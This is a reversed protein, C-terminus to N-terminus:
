PLFRARYEPSAVFGAVIDREPAGGELRSVHFDLGAPEPMRRLLGLYVAIVFSKNRTLAQFEPSESFGAMVQGRTLAGSELRTLYYDYGAADPARGLVNRYVLEVYQAHTLAGYTGIFEPSAVFNGAIEELPTGSRLAELQFALGGADPIRGFFSLYLRTVSPL